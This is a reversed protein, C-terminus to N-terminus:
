IRFPTTIDKSINQPNNTLATRSPHVYVKTAIPKESKKPTISTTTNQQPSMAMNPDKEM